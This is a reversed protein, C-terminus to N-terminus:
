QQRNQHVSSNEGGSDSFRRHGALTATRSASLRLHDLETQEVVLRDPRL